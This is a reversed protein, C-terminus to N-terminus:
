NNTCVEKKRHWKGGSLRALFIIGRFCLETCMAIWVGTLGIRSALFAALPLRVAWMSIFSMLSPVFTDGAGRFVGLAVIAAAFLPEAFAEIRLVKVGLSLVEADTTLLSMMFPAFIYMLIGSLTMILMGFLVAVWGLKRTLERRGAGISQGIIATSAASIGYGPMYCLSEATLAFSNAAIAITGLPAVIASSVVYAGGSVLEEFGVPLAIRLGTKLYGFSPRFKEGRRLSLIDSCAFLYLTMIVAVVIRAAATGLAAGTVGLGMCPLTIGWLTVPEFIFIFNFVVDLLCMLIHLFGPVKMNGSAQLMGSSIQNLQYFPLSLSYVLFYKTANEAISIDAGLIGPLYFSMVSGTAALIFSFGLAFLFGLKMINRALAFETAGIKQAVQVTFGTVAASCLGGFMWTCSTVLGISAAGSAGLRGVMSADIYQMIISSLQAMIAPMSLRVILMIQEYGSLPEGDRLKCLLDKKM